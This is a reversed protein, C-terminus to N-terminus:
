SAAEGQKKIKDKTTKAGDPRNKNKKIELVDDEEVDELENLKHRPPPAEQERLKWKPHHELLTYCHPFKFPM